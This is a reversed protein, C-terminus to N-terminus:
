PTPTIRVVELTLSGPSWSHPIVERSSSMIVIAARTPEEVNITDVTATGGGQVVFSNSYANSANGVQLGGTVSLFANTGTVIVSNGYSNVGKGIQIGSNTVVVRGGNSIVLSANAGPDGVGIFASNTMAGTILLTGSYIETIDSSLNTGSLITTGEGSFVLAYDGVIFGTLNLLAANSLAVDTALEVTTSITNSGALNNLVPANSGTALTITGTGTITYPSSGNSFTLSSLQANTNLVVTGSGNTGFTATDNV